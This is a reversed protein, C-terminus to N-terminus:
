SCLKILGPKIHVRATAVKSSILPIGQNSFVKIRNRYQQKKELCRPCTLKGQFDAIHLIHCCTSCKNSCAFPQEVSGISPRQSTMSALLPTNKNRDLRASTIEVNEVCKQKEGKYFQPQKPDPLFEADLEPDALSHKLKDKQGDKMTHALKCHGGEIETHMRAEQSVTERKVSRPSAEISEPNMQAEVDTLASFLNLRPSENPMDMVKFALASLPLEDDSDSSESESDLAVDGSTDLLTRGVCFRDGRPIKLQRELQSPMVIPWSNLFIDRQIPNLLPINDDGFLFCWWEDDSDLVEHLDEKEVQFDPDLDAFAQVMKM